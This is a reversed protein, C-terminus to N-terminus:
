CVKLLLIGSTEVKRLMCWRGTTMKAYPLLLSSSPEPPRIFYWTAPKILPGVMHAIWTACNVCLCHYFVSLHILQCISLPLFGFRSNPVFLIWQGILYAEYIFYVKGFALLVVLLWFDKNCHTRYTSVSRTSNYKICTSNIKRQCCCKLLCHFKLVNLGPCKSWM